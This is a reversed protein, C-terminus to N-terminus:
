DALDAEVSKFVEIQEQILEGVENEIDEPVDIRQCQHHVVVVERKLGLSFALPISGGVDRHQALQAETDSVGGEQRALTEGLGSVGTCTKCAFILSSRHVTQRVVAGGFVLFLGRRGVAQFAGGLSIPKFCLRQVVRHHPIQDV